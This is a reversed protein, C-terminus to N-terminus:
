WGSQQSTSCDILSNHTQRGIPVIAKLCFSTQPLYKAHRNVNVNNLDPEFILTMPRLERDCTPLFECFSFIKLQANM